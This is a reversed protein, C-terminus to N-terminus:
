APKLDGPAYINQSVDKKGVMPNKTSVASEDEGVYVIHRDAHRGKKWMLDANPQVNTAGHPPVPTSAEPFDCGPIWYNMAGFEYAGIDPKAGVFELVGAVIVARKLTLAGSGVSTGMANAVDNAGINWAMYFGFILALGMLISSHDM